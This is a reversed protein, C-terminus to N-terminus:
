EGDSALFPGMGPMDDACGDRYEDLGLLANHMALPEVGDRVIAQMATIFVAMKRAEFSRARIHAYCALATKRYADSRGSCDPWDVLAVEDSRDNWCLMTNTANRGSKKRGPMTYDEVVENM